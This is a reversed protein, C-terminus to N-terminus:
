RMSIAAPKAVPAAAQAAPTQEMAAELQAHYTAVQKRLAGFQQAAKAVAAMHSAQTEEMKQRIGRVMAENENIKAVAAANEAQIAEKDKLQEDIRSAAAEQRLAAQHELRQLREVLAAQQRKLHQQQATLQSLEAGGAAIEERLAKVKRSVEKKRGVEGEVEELGKMCKQVEREVKAINDMKAQLDRCRKEAEALLERDTDVEQALRQLSAQLKEPSQVIQGRLRECDQQLNMLKFKADSAEDTLQNTKAKLTRVETALASHEKHLLQNEAYIEATEAEVRQVEPVEAQRAAKISTVEAALRAAEAEMAAKEQVLAELAEQMEIYATFQDDKFRIFNVVASLNRKLRAADPKYMDKLTFDKVGSALMLKNLAKVFAMAPISEDHLEPFELADIASFVPQQMEERTIGMCLTVLSEYVPRVTEYTPKLLQAETLSMDMEGLYTLIENANLLPFSYSM